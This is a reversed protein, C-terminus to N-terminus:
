RFGVIPQNSVSYLQKGTRVDWMIIESGTGSILTDGDPAFAVSFVCDYITHVKLERVQEGTEVDWLIITGGSWGSALLTSDPSFKFGMATIRVLYYRDYEWSEPSITREQFFLYSTDASFSPVFVFPSYNDYESTDVDPVCQVTYFGANHCANWAVPHPEVYVESSISITDGEQPWVISVPSPM